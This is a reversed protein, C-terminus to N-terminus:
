SAVDSVSTISQVYLCANELNVSIVTRQGAQSLIQKLVFLGPSRESSASEPTLM